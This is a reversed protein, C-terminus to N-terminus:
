LSFRRAYKGVVPVEKEQGSLANIWSIVWLVLVVLWVVLNILKMLQLMGFGGVFIAAPSLLFFGLVAVAIWLVVSTLFVVLSQKAYFKVYKDEKKTLLAIVFGLISLFTAIFAYTKSDSVDEVKKKKVM